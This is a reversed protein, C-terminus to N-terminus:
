WYEDLARTIEEHENDWFERLEHLLYERVASRQEPSLLALQNIKRGDLCTVAVTVVWSCNGQLDAIMYAPLHFRM